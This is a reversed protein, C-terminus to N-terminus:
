RQPAKPKPRVGPTVNLDVTEDRRQLRVPAAAGPKLAAVQSLL